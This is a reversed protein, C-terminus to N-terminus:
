PSLYNIDNGNTKKRYATNFILPQAPYITQIDLELPQGERALDVNAIIVFVLIVFM